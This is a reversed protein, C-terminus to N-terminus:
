HRLEKLPCQLQVDGGVCDSTEDLCTSALEVQFTLDVANISRRNHVDVAM